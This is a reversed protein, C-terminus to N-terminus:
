DLAEALYGPLSVPSRPHRLDHAIPAAGSDLEGTAADVHYGGGTVTVTVLRTDARSLIRLVAEPDNPAVLCGRMAGVVRAREGGAGRELVTYLCDQPALAARMRGSRLGVGITGWEMSTRREALEDFYVAQHARHFGGVGIHVVSPALRARDYTPVAVRGAHRHLTRDSLSQARHERFPVHVAISSEM